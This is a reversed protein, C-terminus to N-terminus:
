DWVWIISHPPSNSFVDPARPPLVFSRYAVGQFREFVHSPYADSSALVHVADEPLPPLNDLTVARGPTNWVRWFNHFWTWLTVENVVCQPLRGVGGSLFAMMFAFAYLGCSLGDSQQQVSVLQYVLEDDQQNPHLYLLRMSSALVPDVPQQLNGVLSNAVHVVGGSRCTFVWHNPQHVIQCGDGAVFAFNSRPVRGDDMTGLLTSQVLSLDVQARLVAYQQLALVQSDNLWYRAVPQRSEPELPLMMKVRKAPSSSSGPPPLKEKQKRVAYRHSIHPPLTGALFLARSEALEPRTSLSADVTCGGQHYERFVPHHRPLRCTKCLVPKIFAALEAVRQQRLSEPVSCESSNMVHFKSFDQHFKPYHCSACTYTLQGSPMEDPGADMAMPDELAAPDSLTAPHQHAAPQLPPESFLNVPQRLREVFAPYSPSARVPAMTNKSNVATQVVNFMDRMSQGTAFQSTDPDINWRLALLDFDPGSAGSPNHLLLEQFKKMVSNSIQRGVVLLGQGKHALQQQVEAHAAPDIHEEDDDDDDLSGDPNDVPNDAEEAADCMDAAAADPPSYEHWWFREGNDANTAKLSPYVEVGLSAAVARIRELLELDCHGFDPQRGNRIDIGHNWCLNFYALVLVGWELSNNGGRLALKLQLHYGELASTGRACHLRGKDTLSYLNVGPRDSLCGAKAHQLLNIFKQDAPSGAPILQKGTKSDAINRFLDYTSQLHRVLDNPQRMQRRCKSAVIHWNDRLYLQVAERTMKKKTMIKTTLAELDSEDVVFFSDQMRRMFAHFAGHQKSLAPGLRKFAHFPDLKVFEGPPLPEEAAAAAAPAAPAAAAAAAAAAPAAAPAAAAAATAPPTPPLWLLRARPVSFIDGSQVLEEGSGVISAQMATPLLVDVVQVPVAHGEVPLETVRATAVTFSGSIDQLQRVDGVHLTSRRKAEEYIRLSVIADHAAYEIAQKHNKNDLRAGWDTKRALTKDLPLGFFANAMDSLSKPAGAAICGAAVLFSGLDVWDDSKAAPIAGISWESLRTKDGNINSGTKVLTQDNLLKAVTPPLEGKWNVIQMVLVHHHSAIQLVCVKHPHRWEIDVGVARGHLIADEYVLNCLTDAVAPQKVCVIPGTYSGDKQFFSLPLFTESAVARKMTGVPVERPFFPELAREIAARQACCEDTYFAKIMSGQQQLRERLDHLMPEIEVNCEGSLFRQMLIQGDGNMLSFVVKFIQDGASNRMLKALKYNGDHGVVPLESSVTVLQQRRTMYMFKGRLDREIREKFWAYSPIYSFGWHGDHFPPFVQVEGVPLLFFLLDIIQLISAVHPM